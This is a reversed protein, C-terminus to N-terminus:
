FPPYSNVLFSPALKSFLLTRTVFFFLFVFRLFDRRDQHSFSRLAEWLLQVEVSSESLTDASEGDGYTTMEKLWNIDVTKRGCVLREMQEATFLSLLPLPVIEGLGALVAARQM